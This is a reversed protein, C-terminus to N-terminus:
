KKAGGSAKKGGAKQKEPEQDPVPEADVETTTDTTTDLAPEPEAEVAPALEPVIYGLNASEMKKAFAEDVDVSEGVKHRRGSIITNQLLIVQM